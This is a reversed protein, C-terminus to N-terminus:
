ALPLGQEDMRSALGQVFTTVNALISKAQPEDYTAEVHMTENRWSNKVSALTVHIAFFKAQENWAGGRRKIEDHIKNCLIGWSRASVALDPLGLCAYVANLGVEVARMAHFVAATYEGVAFCNGARVLERDATPMNPVDASREFYPARDPPVFLFLRNELEDMVFSLLLSYEGSSKPPDVAARRMSSMSAVLGLQSCLGALETFHAKLEAKEADSLPRGVDSPSLTEAMYLRGGFEHMLQGLKVYQNASVKLMDWLSVLRSSGQLRDPLTAAPYPM